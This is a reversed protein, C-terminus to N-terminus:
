PIANDADDDTCMENGNGLQLELQRIMIFNYCLTGQCLLFTPISNPTQTGVRKLILPWFPGIQTNECIQM